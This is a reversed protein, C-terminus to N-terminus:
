LTCISLIYLCVVYKKMMLSSGQTLKKNGNQSKCIKGTATKVLGVTATKSQRWKPKDGNQGDGGLQLWNILGGSMTTNWQISCDFQVQIFASITTQM